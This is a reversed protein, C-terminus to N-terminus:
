IPLAPKFGFVQALLLAPFQAIAENYNMISRNFEAQAREVQVAVQTWELQLHDPLAPGALDPPLDRLQSWALALAALADRLPQIKLHDLPQAQALKLARNFPELTAELATWASASGPGPPDLVPVVLVTFHASLLDTHQRLLDNLGVFTQLSQARLRVLRNYAGTWWFLLLAFTLWVALSVSM